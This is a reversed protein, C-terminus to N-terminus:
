LELRSIDIVTEWDEPVDGSAVIREVKAREEPSPQFRLWSHEGYEKEFFQLQGDVVEVIGSGCYYEDVRRYCLLRVCHGRLEQESAHTGWSSRDKERTAVFAGTMMSAVM